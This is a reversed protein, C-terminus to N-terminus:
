HLKLRVHWAPYDKELLEAPYYNYWSYGTRREREVEALTYVKSGDRNAMFPRNTEIEYFRAWIPPATKDGIVKVDYNSSYYDFKVPETPIKEIRIGHIKSHEFWAIAAEIAQIIKRDPKEISMLYRVVAVSEWSVLGPLEYSRAAVPQLTNRDYQGAWVTPQGDVMIQLKLVLSDGMRLAKHVRRRLKKDIFGYLNQDTAIRRLLSLVGPMVEDMFTIHARYDGTGPPSHAWGGNPYQSALIFEIGRLAADRHRDDRTQQYVSALYDIQPYTNRNDFSTDRENRAALEQAREAENLIRLPDKNPPWGGNSRQYLLLNETIEIIQEPRYHTTTTNRDGTRDQWHKISDAFGDLPIAQYGAAAAAPVAILLGLAALTSRILLKGTINNRGAASPDKSRRCHGARAIGNCWITKWILRSYSPRPM